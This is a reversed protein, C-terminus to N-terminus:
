HPPQVSHLPSQPSPHPAENIHNRVMDLHRPAMKDQNAIAPEVERELREELEGMREGATWQEVNLADDIAERIGRDFDDFARAFDDGGGAAGDGGEQTAGGPRAPRVPIVTM